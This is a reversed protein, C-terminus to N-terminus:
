FELQFHNKKYKKKEQQNILTHINLNKKNGLNLQKPGPPSM